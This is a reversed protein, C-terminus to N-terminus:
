KSRTAWPHARSMTQTVISATHIYFSNLKLRAENQGLEKLNLYNNKVQANVKTRGWSHYPNHLPVSHVEPGAAM